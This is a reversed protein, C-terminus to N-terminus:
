RYAGNGFNVVVQAQQVSADALRTARIVVDRQRRLGHALHDIVHEGLRFTLAQHQQRWDNFLAFAFMVFGKFVKGPLAVDARPDVALDAIEGIRWLQLQLLFVSNFHHNVAKLHAVIEARAQGLRKFGRQLQRAAGGDDGIHVIRFSFLQQKGGVEGARNATVAHAFQFRAQEGEVVRRASARGAVAEAHLLIKVRFAHNLVRLQRQRAPRNAAPIPAIKVVELHQLRQRFMIFEINFGGPARQIAAYM